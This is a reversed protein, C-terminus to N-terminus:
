NTTTAVAADRRILEEFFNPLLQMTDVTLHAILSKDVGRAAFVRAVQTHMTELINLIQQELPKLQEQLRNLVSIFGAKRIETTAKHEVRLTEFHREIEERADDKQKLINSCRSDILEKRKADIAALKFGWDDADIDDYARPHKSRFDNYTKNLREEERSLENLQQQVPALRSAIERNFREAHEHLAQSEQTGIAQLRERQERAFAFIDNEASLVAERLPMTRQQIEEMRTKFPAEIEVRQADIEAQIANFAETRIRREIEGYFRTAEMIDSPQLTRDAITYDAFINATLM